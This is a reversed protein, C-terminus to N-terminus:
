GSYSYIYIYSEFCPPCFNYCRATQSRVWLETKLTCFNRLIKNMKRYNETNQFFVNTYKSGPSEFYLICVRKRVELPIYMRTKPDEKAQFAVYMRTKKKISDRTFFICFFVFFICGRCLMDILFFVLVCTFVCLIAHGSSCKLGRRSLRLEKLM